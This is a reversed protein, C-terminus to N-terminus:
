RRAAASDASDAIQTTDTTDGSSQTDHGASAMQTQQEIQQQQAVAEPSSHQPAPHTNRRTASHQQATHAATCMEQRQGEGEVTRRQDEEEAPSQLM